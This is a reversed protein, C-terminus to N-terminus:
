CIWSCTHNTLAWPKNLGMTAQRYPLLLWGLFFALFSFTIRLCPSLLSYQHPASCSSLQNRGGEGGGKHIFRRLTLPNKCLIAFGFTGTSFTSEAAFWFHRQRQIRLLFFIKKSRKQITFDM